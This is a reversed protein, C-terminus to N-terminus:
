TCLKIPSPLTLQTNYGPTPETMRAALPLRAQAATPYQFSPSPWPHVDSSHILIFNQADGMGDLHRIVREVGEYNVQRFPASIFRDYGRSAGTYIGEGVDMLNSTLYGADCM